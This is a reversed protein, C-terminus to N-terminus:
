NYKEIRIGIDEIGRLSDSRMAQRIEFQYKGEQHFRARQMVMVEASRIAGYGSGYWEGSKDALMLELTDEVMSGDPFHTQTFFYLNRYGYDTNHRVNIIFNYLQATDAIEPQFVLTDSKYWGQADVSKYQDYVRSSDCSQLFTAAIISGLVWFLFQKYRDM